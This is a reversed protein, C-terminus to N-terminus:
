CAPAMSRAVIETALLMNTSCTLGDALFGAGRASFVSWELELIEVGWDSIGGLRASTGAGGDATREEAGLAPGGCRGCQLDHQRAGPCLREFWVSGFGWRPVCAAGPRDYFRAGCRFYVVWAAWGFGGSKVKSSGVKLKGRVWGVRKRKSYQIKEGPPGVGLLRGGVVYRSSLERSLWAVARWRACPSGFFGWFGRAWFRAWGGAAGGSGNGGWFDRACLRADLGRELPECQARPFWGAGSSLVCGWTLGLSIRM